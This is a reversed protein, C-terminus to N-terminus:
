AMYNFTMSRNDRNKSLDQTVQIIISIHINYLWQQFKQRQRRLINQQFVALAAMGYFCYLYMFDPAHLDFPSM